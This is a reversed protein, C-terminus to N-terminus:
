KKNKNQFIANMQTKLTADDLVPGRYWKSAKIQSITFRELCDDDCMGNVLDMFDQTFVNKSGRQKIKGAWFADNNHVFTSYCNVNTHTPDEKETFPFQRALFTFLIVGASFIDAATMEYCSGDIVEPARYNTTGGSTIVDDKASQAQDFDIIKLQFDAGLLINDLKLDLHAVGQSHIYELGAIMQHFYTRVLVESNLYGKTVLNFFDGYQAHETLLPYFRDDHCVIPVRSIINKHSLPFMLKEKSYQTVGFKTKPFLKLVYKTKRNSSYVGYVFLKCEKFQSLLKLGETVRSGDTYTIMFEQM